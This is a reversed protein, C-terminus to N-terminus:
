PSLPNVQDSVAVQCSLNLKMIISDSRRSSLGFVRWRSFGVMVDHKGFFFGNLRTTHRICILNLLLIAGNGKKKPNKKNKAVSTKEWKAKAVRFKSM